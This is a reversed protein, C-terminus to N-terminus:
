KYAHLYMYIFLILVCFVLISMMEIIIQMAFLYKFNLKMADVPQYARSDNLTLQHQTINFYSDM